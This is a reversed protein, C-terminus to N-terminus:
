DTPLSLLVKLKFVYSYNQENIIEWKGNKQAELVLHGNSLNSKLNYNIELERQQSNARGLDFVQGSDLKILKPLTKHNWNIKAALRMGDLYLTGPDSFKFSIAFKTNKSFRPPAPAKYEHRQENLFKSFRGKSM